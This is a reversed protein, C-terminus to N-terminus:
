KVDKQGPEGPVAESVLSMERSKGIRLLALFFFVPALFVFLSLRRVSGRLM